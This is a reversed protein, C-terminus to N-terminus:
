LKNEAAVTRYDSRSGEHVGALEQQETRREVMAFMKRMKRTRPAHHAGTARALVVGVGPGVATASRAHELPVADLVERFTAQELMRKM